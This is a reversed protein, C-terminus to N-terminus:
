RKSSLGLCALEQQTVTISPRKDGSGKGKATIVILLDTIFAITHAVKNNKVGPKPAMACSARGEEFGTVTSILFACPCDTPVAWSDLAGLPTLITNSILFKGGPSCEM